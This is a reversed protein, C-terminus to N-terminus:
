RASALKFLLGFGDGLSVGVQLTSWTWWTWCMLIGAIPLHLYSFPRWPWAIEPLLAPVLETVPILPLVPDMAPGHLGMVELVPQLARNFHAITPHNCKQIAQNEQEWGANFSTAQCLNMAVKVLEPDTLVLPRREKPGPKPLMKHKLKEATM